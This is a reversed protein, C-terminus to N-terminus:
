IGSKNALIASFQRKGAMLMELMYSQKGGEQFYLKCREASRDTLQGTGKLFFTM